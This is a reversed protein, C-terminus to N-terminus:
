QVPRAQGMSRVIEYTQRLNGSAAAMRAPCKVIPKAEAVNMGIGTDPYHKSWAEDRLTQTSEEWLVNSALPALKEACEAIESRNFGRVSNVSGSEDQRNGTVLLATRIGSGGANFHFYVTWRSIPVQEAVNQPGM